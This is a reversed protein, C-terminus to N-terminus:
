GQTDRHLAMITEFLGAMEKIRRESSLLAGIAQNRKGAVIESEAIDADNTADRLANNLKVILVELTTHIRDSM